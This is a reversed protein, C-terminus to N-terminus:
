SVRPARQRFRKSPVATDPKAPEWVVLGAKRARDVMDATGRDGPFAVVNTPLYRELMYQNRRPGAAGRYRTWRAPVGIYDVERTQAWEEAWRDAGCLQDSGYLRCAGHIILMEPNTEHLQDLSKFVFVRHLYDRGGTVLVRTQNLLYQVRQDAETDDM